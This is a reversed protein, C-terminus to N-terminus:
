EPEGEYVITDGQLNVFTLSENETVKYTPNKDEFKNKGIKYLSFDHVGYGSNKVKLFDGVFSFSESGSLASCDEIKLSDADTDESDVLIIACANSDLKATNICYFFGGISDTAFCGDTWKPLEASDKETTSILAGLSDEKKGLWGIKMGVPYYSRSIERSFPDGDTYSMWHDDHITGYEYHIVKAVAVSDNLVGAFNWTYSDGEVEYETLSCGYPSLLVFIFASLQKIIKM